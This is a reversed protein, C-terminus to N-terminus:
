DKNSDANNNREFMAIARVLNVCSAVTTTDTATASDRTVSLRAYVMGRDELVGLSVYRAASLADVNM